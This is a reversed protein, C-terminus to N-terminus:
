DLYLDGAHNKKLTCTMEMGPMKVDVKIEGADSKYIKAVESGPPLFGKIVQILREDM